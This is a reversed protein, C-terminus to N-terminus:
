LSIFRHDAVDHCSLESLDYAFCAREGFAMYLYVLKMCHDCFVKSFNPEDFQINVGKELMSVLFNLLVHWMFSSCSVLMEQLHIGKKKKFLLGWYHLGTRKLM